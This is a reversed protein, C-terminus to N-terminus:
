KFEVVVERGDAVNEFLGRVINVANADAADLLGYESSNAQKKARSEAESVVELLDDQNVNLIAFGKDYIKIDDSKIKISDEDITCHPITVTIKNDTEKIEAENVDFGATVTTQYRVLFNNKTLIPVKGKSCEFVDTIVLKQTTLDSSKELVTELPTTDKAKSNRYYSVGSFIGIGVLIILVIIVIRKIKKKM